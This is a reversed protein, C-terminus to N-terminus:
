NVVILKKAKSSSSSGDCDIRVRYLYVGTQLKGNGTTLDWEKTYAGTTIVGNEEIKWLQRGSTDFIAIEVNLQSGVRDHNVIFTTGTRAPNNTVNVDICRPQLSRVVNFTLETTTSNNLIDWARFRLRHRGESLEPISYYTTGSTYSGFDYEFNNNLNYTKTMDGDIVLELDHGIGNGTTNLGDKDNLKAVFYPTSNVNGGDVFEQNNLYCYVSPGISDNAALASGGVIFHETCGNAAEKSENSLAYVNVLGTGDSYNIDKPVAFVFDFVGSKVDAGGSFLIKTRDEYEFPSQAGETSKDNLLCIVKEKTDKVIISAKGNFQEDKSGNREIHGKVKAISGARLQPMNDGDNIAVGNISDVVAKLTPINLVIAPDGLLAYQLKNVSKDSSYQANGKEDYGVFVSSLIRSKALRQAEGISNFRGTADREFLAKLFQTNILVNGNTYVTRATGFFAVAGGRNNLVAAEGINDVQGDFPMFDCGATIWLSLNTNTFNEFDSYGLVREHSFTTPSGHGIYDMILAGNAQQQKILASVDPYFNGTASSVRNYADWMVQKVNMGPNAALLFDASTVAQRMHINGNGDDGMVMVTNQWDGANKNEVYSITKDVMVQAQLQSRVPFRGVAIDARDSTQPNSGEGDDLYCFYNEDVYCRVQSFSNESEHCLLFHDPDHGKWAKTNMRNDWACDGFLLLFRPMEEDTEARDYLMKLYRRYANTDPTGSSFENFLEDAPVIRTKLGDHQEHFTKLREAQDLFEQSTPIIIVMQYGNDGHLDQNTINYVYEPESFSHSSLKEMSRYSGSMAAIYDLRVVDGGENTIKVTNNEKFNEVYFTFGRLVGHDYDRDERKLDFRGLLSDNLEVAVTSESGSTIAVYLQAEGDDGSNKDSPAQITYIKSKGDAIPDDEYLNRGGEFWSFNDVEHLTHNYEMAPYFSSVFTTSDVTAPEEDSETIFYYGYDSFANRSRQANYRNWTVPGQARFLRRGNVVCLPVEKLDDTEILYTATLREPQPAGGYGYVKVKNLNSFGAKKILTETIQYIGTEPVRIKAWRGSALVSHEAYRSSASNARSEVMLQREEVAKSEICLMFSVLKMWKGERVVVPTFMMELRGNKRDVVQQTFVQPLEGPLQQFLQECRAADQKSMVMFEPYKISVTYISDAYNRGLEEVHTFVPLVSDVKVEEATLNFFRQRQAQVGLM